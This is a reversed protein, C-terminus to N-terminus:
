FGAPRLDLLFYPLDRFFGSEVDDTAAEVHFGEPQVAHLVALRRAQAREDIEYIRVQKGVGEINRRAAYRTARARGVILINEAQQGVLRSFTPQSVGLASTLEAGGSPGLSALRRLLESGLLELDLKKPM